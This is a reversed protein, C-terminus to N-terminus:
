TEERSYPTGLAGPAGLRKSAKTKSIIVLVLITCLYPFMKLVYGPIPIQAAQMYFQLANIFGFFMAGAVGIVPNWMSFIILAIVIWGQGGTMGEKWGPIYSLSLYSGGIGAMMGGFFTCMYRIRFVNVGLTDAASPKEGVARINLGYRTKFLFITLLPVLVYVLYILINQQFLVQGIYPIEDLLPINIADFSKAVKGIFPRGLYSSLGIGLITLSLGSVVQNCRLNIILFGHVLAMVGGTLAAFLVGLWLAGTLFTIIFGMLAGMLMMGEIGLNLVGSREAFIGGLTAYLIGMSSQLAISVLFLIENTEM